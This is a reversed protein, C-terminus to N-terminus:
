KKRQSKKGTKDADPTNSRRPQAPDDAKEAGQRNEALVAQRHFIIEHPVRLGQARNKKEEVPAGSRAIEDVVERIDLDLKSYEIAYFSQVVGQERASEKKLFDHMFPQMAVRGTIALKNLAIYLSEYTAQTWNIPMKNYKTQWQLHVETRSVNLHDHLRNIMSQRAHWSEILEIPTKYELSLKLALMPTMKPTTRLATALEKRIALPINRLAISPPTLPPQTKPVNQTVQNNNASRRSRVAPPIGSTGPLSGDCNLFSRPDEPPGQVKKNSASTKTMNSPPLPLVFYVKPPNEYHRTSRQTAYRKRQTVPMSKKLLDRVTLSDPLSSLGTTSSLVRNALNNSPGASHAPAPMSGVPNRSSRLSKPTNTVKQATASTGSVNSTVATVSPKGVNIKKKTPNESRKPPPQPEKEARQTTPVSSIPIANVPVPGPISSQGASSTFSTENAVNNVRAIPPTETTGPTSDETNGSSRSVEKPVNPVAASVGSAVSPLIPVQVSGPVSSQVVPSTSVDQDVNNGAPPAGSTGPMTGDCNLSSRSDELSDLVNQVSDPIEPFESSMSPWAFRIKKKQPNEAPPLPRQVRKGGRQMTPILIDKITVNAPLACQGSSSTSPTEQAASPIGSAGPLSGGSKLFSRVDLGPLNLVPIGLVNFPLAPLNGLGIQEKPPNESGHPPHQLQNETSQTSPGSTIPISNAPVTASQGTSSTSAKDQKASKRTPPIGSTGPLSGDCNVNPTNPVNQAASSAGLGSSPLAQQSPQAVRTRRIQPRRPRPEKRQAAPILVDRVTITAPLSSQGASSTAPTESSSLGGPQPLGQSERMRKCVTMGIFEALGLESQSPKWFSAAENPQPVQQPISSSPERHLSDPASSTPGAVTEELPVLNCSAHTVFSLSGNQSDTATNANVEVNQIQITSSSSTIAASIINEADTPIAPNPPEAVQPLKESDDTEPDTAQSNAPSAPLSISSSPSSTNPTREDLNNVREHEELVIRLFETHDQLGNQISNGSDNAENTGNQAAQHNQTPAEQGGEQVTKSKPPRGRPRKVQAQQSDTRIKPPRGPGRGSPAKVEKSTKPRGRKRPLDGGSESSAPASENNSGIKVSADPANGDTRPRNPPRGPKKKPPLGSIPITKNDESEEM